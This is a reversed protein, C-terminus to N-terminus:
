PQAGREIRTLELAVGDLFAVATMALADEGTVQILATVAQSVSLVVRGITVDDLDSLNSRLDDALERGGKAFVHPLSEAATTLYKRDADTLSM